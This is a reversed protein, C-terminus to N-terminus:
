SEQVSLTYDRKVGRNFIGVWVKYKGPKWNKATVSADKSKRTDDGCRITQDDPGQIVLTTDSNGSNIEIDLRRFKDSLILIHDPTPDAFGICPNGNGDRRSIASLPFTGGTYGAAKGKTAPFGPSLEITGFNSTDMPLPTPAAAGISIIAALIGGWTLIKPNIVLTNKSM